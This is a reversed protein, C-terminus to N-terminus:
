DLLRELSAEAGRLRELATERRRRAETSTQEQEDWLRSLLDLSAQEHVEAPYCCPYGLEACFASVKPDYAVGLAPVAASAALVLSHLRYGLLLASCLVLALMASAGQGAAHAPTEYVKTDPGCLSAVERCFALDAAPQFACLVLPLGSHEAASRLLRSLAEAESTPDGPHPLDGTPRPACLLYGGPKLGAPLLEPPASLRGALVPDASLLPEAGAAIRGVKEQAWHLSQEDRLSLLSARKLWRPTLWRGLWSNIPGIGQHLLCTKVGAASARRLVELYFLLSRLSSSDQLVSGGPLVLAAYDKLPRRLLERKDVCEGLLPLLADSESFGSLPDPSSSVVDAQLGRSRMWEGHALLFDALLCDDGLNAAGFYGLLLIRRM